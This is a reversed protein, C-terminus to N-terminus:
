NIKIFVYKPLNEVLIALKHPLVNQPVIYLHLMSTMKELVHLRHNFFPQNKIIYTDNVNAVNELNLTSQTELDQYTHAQFQLM